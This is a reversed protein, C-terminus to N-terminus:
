RERKRMGKLLLNTGLHGEDLRHIGLLITERKPDRVLVIHEM